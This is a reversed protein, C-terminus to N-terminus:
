GLGDLMDQIRARGGRHLPLREGARNYPVDAVTLRVPPSAGRSWRRPSCAARVHRRRNPLRPPPTVTPGVDEIAALPLVEGDRVVRATCSSSATAPPTGDAGGTRTRRAAATRRGLGEVMCVTRATRDPPRPRRRPVARQPMRGATCPPSWRSPREGPRPLRSGSASGSWWRRKSPRGNSSATRSAGERSEAVARQRARVPMRGADSWDIRHAVKQVVDAGAPRRGEASRCSGRWGVIVSEHPCPQASRDVGAAALGRRAAADAGLTLFGEEALWNLVCFYTHLPASGHDSLLVTATGPPVRALFSALSRDFAVHFDRITHEYPGPGPYAPHTPDMYRWYFHQLKDLTHSMVWFLDWDEHELLYTAEATQVRQLDFADTRFAETAATSRNRM